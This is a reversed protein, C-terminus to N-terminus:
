NTSYDIVKRVQKLVQSPRYPKQVFNKLELEPIDQKVKPDLYGSALIVKAQPNFKKMELYAQWGNLKPLGLDTFILDISNYNKSYLEVAEKGNRATLVKYGHYKLTDKVVNLLMEEDEVLLITEKGNSETKNKNILDDITLNIEEDAVPFYLYFTTGKGEESEVDIFGHHNSIIGYVVSLGLGTGSGEKKTTYFPEFIRKTVLKDMGIGTDSIMICTYNIEKADSFKKRLKKGLITTTKISINGGAPMADRANICINLLVQHFQNHDAKIFPLNDELDLSFSISTPFTQKAMDVLDRVASNVKVIEFLVNKKRAFTLIQQVLGTGRDTAKIISKLGWSVRKQALKGQQILSAYGMIIGLINNFDHAIGGALTGLGQLKQAQRLQEELQKKETIDQAIGVLAIPKNKNDTVMSTSLYIPFDTGDKKKNYLIGQWGGNLSAPLIEKAVSPRTLHSRILEINQGILEKKKYGYTKLFAQNIFVIKNELDTIVVCESISTVTHALLSLKNALLTKSVTINSFSKWLFGYLILSTIGVYLFGKITQLETIYKPDNILILTLKDSFFIWALSYILFILVMKLSTVWTKPPHLAVEM